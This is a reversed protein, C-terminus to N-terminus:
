GTTPDNFALSAAVSLDPEVERGTAYLIGLEFLLGPDTRYGIALGAATYSLTGPVWRTTVSAGLLERQRAEMARYGQLSSISYILLASGAWGLLDLWTM